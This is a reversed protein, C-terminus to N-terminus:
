PWRWHSGSRAPCPGASELRRRRSGRIQPDNGTAGKAGCSDTPVTALLLTRRRGSKRRHARISRRYRLRPGVRRRARSGRRWLRWRRFSTPNLSRRNSWPREDSRVRPCSRETRFGSLGPSSRPRLGNRPMGDCRALTYVRERSPGGHARDASEETEENQREEDRRNGQRM